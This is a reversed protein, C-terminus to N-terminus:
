SLYSLRYKMFSWNREVVVCEVRLSRIKSFYILNLRKIKNAHCVHLLLSICCNAPIIEASLHGEVEAGSQRLRRPTCKRCGRNRSWCSQHTIHKNPACTLTHDLPLSHHGPCGFSVNNSCTYSFVDTSCKPFLPQIVKQSRVNAQDAWRYSKTPANASSPICPCQYYCSSQNVPLLM